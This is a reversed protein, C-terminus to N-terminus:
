RGGDVAIAIAGAITVLITAALLKEVGPTGSLLAVALAGSSILGGFFASFGVIRSVSAYTRLTKERNGGGIFPLSFHANSRASVKTKDELHSRGVAAQQEGTAPASEARVRVGAEANRPRVFSELVSAPAKNFNFLAM